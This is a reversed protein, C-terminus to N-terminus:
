PLVATLSQGHLLFWGPFPIAMGIFDHGPAALILPVGVSLIFFHGAQPLSTSSKEVSACISQAAHPNM